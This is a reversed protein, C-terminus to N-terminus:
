FFEFFQVKFCTFKLCMNSFRPSKLYFFNDVDFMYILHAGLIKTNVIHVNSIM